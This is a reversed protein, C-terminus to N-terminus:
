RPQYPTHGQLLHMAIFQQLQTPMSPASLGVTPQYFPPLPLPLAGRVDGLHQMGPVMRHTQLDSVLHSPLTTSTPHFSSLIPFNPTLTVPPQPVVQSEHQLVSGLARGEGVHTGPAQMYSASDPQQGTIPQLAIPTPGYSTTARASARATEEQMEALVSRPKTKRGAARPKLLGAQVAELAGPLQSKQRPKKRRSDVFREMFDKKRKPYAHLGDALVQPNPIMCADATPTPISSRNALHTQFKESCVKLFYHAEPAQSSAALNFYADLEARLSSLCLRASPSVQNRSSVQDLTAHAEPESVELTGQQVDPQQQSPAQGALPHSCTEEPTCMAAYGGANSGWLSGLCKLMTGESVGQRLLCLAIHSCVHQLARCSCSCQADQGPVLRVSYEQDPRTASAVLFEHASCPTVIEPDSQDRAKAKLLSDNVMVIAALNMKRGTEKALAMKQFRPVTRDKIIHVTRDLRRSHLKGSLDCKQAISMQFHNCYPM